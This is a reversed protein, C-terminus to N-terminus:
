LLAPLFFHHALRGTTAFRHGGVQDTRQDTAREAIGHPVVLAVLADASHHASHDPSRDAAVDATGVALVVAIVDIRLLTAAGNVCGHLLLFQNTIVHAIAVIADQMRHAHWLIWAGRYPDPDIHFRYESAAGLQCQLWSAWRGGVKILGHGM